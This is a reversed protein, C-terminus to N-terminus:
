CRVDAVGSAVATLGARILAESTSRGVCTSKRRAAAGCNSREERRAVEAARQPLRALPPKTRQPTNQFRTVPKLLACLRSGSRGRGDEGRRKCVRESSRALPALILPTSASAPQSTYAGVITPVARYSPRGPATPGSEVVPVARESLRSLAPILGARAAGRDDWIPGPRGTAWSPLRASLM